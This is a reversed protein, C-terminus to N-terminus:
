TLELFSIYEKTQLSKLKLAREVAKLEENNPINTYFSHVDMIVLFRQQPVKNITLVKKLSIPQIKSM